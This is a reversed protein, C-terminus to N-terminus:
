LYPERVYKFPINYIEKWDYRELFPYIDIWCEIATPAKIKKIILNNYLEKSKIISISKNINGIKINPETSQIYIDNRNQLFLIKWEKPISSKLANYDLQTLNTQNKNNFEQINLFENQPTLM